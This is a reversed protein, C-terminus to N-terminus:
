KKKKIIIFLFSMIYLIRQFKGHEQFSPLLRLFVPRLDKIDVMGAEVAMVGFYSFMPCCLFLVLITRPEMPSFYYLLLAYTIWLVPVAMISFVIKKSLLVDRAEVKVRSAKLDKKAESRAWYSAAAGVPANLIISPISAIALVGCGHLFTYLTKAYPVDLHNVQYDKLAWEDLTNQYNTISAELQKLDEADLYKEMIIKYGIAFRRALDQKSKTNTDYSPHRSHLRRATHILKLTDYDPATVIVSRMGEEVKGLLDQCAKRKDEKYQQVLSKDIRIPEGYEIVV